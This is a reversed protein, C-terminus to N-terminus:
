RRVLYLYERNRLRGVTGVKVGAPSHIGIKAGVYRPHDHELTTVEGHEVLMAEMAERSIFGEDSFSVLLYRSQTAQLVARLAPDAEHRRNFLSKRTRCDVRKCAIGYVEPKDWLVLSEWVHYNGLYTHQNYPPDLYVLDCPLTAAELADLRHAECAGRAPRPLLEPVRLALDNLSRPAWEKLYAMQVGTTSDVRDAAEMLSTLMVAELDPELGKLAIAERIADVREGNRPQFFRSQICFTETFYGSSGPLANFEGVLRQADAGVREVDAQVYCRALTYAYAMLDNSVVRYGEAKLAHGVRSTGSFLDLVSHVDPLSQVMGQIAPILARKSGLYKIM